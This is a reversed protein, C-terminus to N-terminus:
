PLAELLAKAKQLDCTEFPEIFRCYPLILSHDAETCKGLYALAVGPEARV